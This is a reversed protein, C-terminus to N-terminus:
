NFDSDKGPEARGPRAAVECWGSTKRLVSQDRPAQGLGVPGCGDETKSVGQGAPRLQGEPLDERFIGRDALGM